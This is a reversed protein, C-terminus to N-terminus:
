KVPLFITFTSGKGPTSKVKIEGKHENIIGQSVFLGLGTGSDAKTTFFPDFIRDLNDPSIGEGTDTIEASVYQGSCSTRIIIKGQGKISDQANILINLFVQYLQQFWGKVKPLKKHLDLELKINQFALQNEMLFVAKKVLENVDIASQEESVPRYTDLLKAVIERIKEINTKAFEYNKIRRSAPAIEGRIIELHTVIGQLPNNIEHAISAALRGTAALRESQRLERTREEVLDELHMRYDELEREVKKRESIDRVVCILGGEAKATLSIEQSFSSGDKKKGVAEGRWRGEKWLVPMVEKAIRKAEKDDYLIHWTKGVLEPPSDYGYIKAHADNVYIYEEKNNLVAMGDISAMMAASQERMISEAKKRETIDRVIVQSGPKGDLTFNVASVEADFVSGNLRMMKIEIAPVKLGQHIKTIRDRVLSRAEPATMDFVSTGVLDKSSDAGFLKAGATNIFAIKDESRVFIADPSLEVLNRYREESIKLNGEFQKRETIIEEVGLFHTVVGQPNKIPLIAAAGWYFDGNKKKNYFEGRWENGSRITKWLHAYEEPPTKGSKLIRPNRGIAEQATYGTVETFKSNVFQITGETDTILINNPSQEVARSLIRLTEEAQRRFTIDRAIGIIGIIKNEKLQPTVIVEAIRTTKGPSVFRLEMPRAPENRLLREREALALPLDDPHILGTFPKGIWASRPWGSNTEFAPNLSTIINDGLSVSFITDPATEILSRYRSESERLAEQVCFREEEIAIASALIELLRQDDKSPTFDARYLGCIMASVKNSVKIPRGIYTSIGYKKVGSDTAAFPSNQLRTIVTVGEKGSKLVDYCIHGEAKDAGPLGLPANWQDIVRWQGDQIYSYIVCDAKLLEGCLNIIRHINDKPNPGFALFSQNLKTLQEENIKRIVANAFIEGAIKLLVIIEKPWTKEQRVSDFGLFGVASDSVVMPVCILSQISEAEFEKKEAAAEPPLDKISSFYVEGKERLVRDFWPFTHIALDQLRHMQSSIGPACWEHTNTMRSKQNSYLFVYCRDVGAFEALNKLARSIGDDITDAAINMFSTSINLILRELEVRYKIAEEALKRETIDTVLGDYTVIHKQQDLRPLIVNQIWRVSGDKHRIRHEFLPAKEGRSMKSIQETVFKKDEEYIMRYWLLADAAYEKPTYGTIAECGPGHETSVPQGDKLHVTYTYDTVSDLLRKYSAESNRLIEEIQQREIRDSGKSKLIDEQARKREIAYSIVRKLLVSNLEEKALYDQAGQRVAELALTEDTVHALVVLPANPILTKIKAVAEIGQADPLSLDLLIIDFSNACLYQQAELCSRTRTVSFVEQPASKQSDALMGEILRADAPNSEILLLRKDQLSSNYKKLLAQPHNM